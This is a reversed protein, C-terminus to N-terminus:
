GYGVGQVTFLDAKDRSTVVLETVPNGVQVSFGKSQQVHAIVEEDVWTANHLLSLGM